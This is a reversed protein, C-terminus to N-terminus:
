FIIINLRFEFSIREGTSTSKRKRTLVYNNSRGRVKVENTLAVEVHGTVVDGASYTVDDRDLKILVDSKMREVSPAAELAARHLFLCIKKLFFVESCDIRINIFM